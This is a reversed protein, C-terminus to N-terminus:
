FAEHSNKLGERHLYEHLIVGNNSLTLPLLKIMLLSLFFVSFVTKKIVIGFVFSMKWKLM